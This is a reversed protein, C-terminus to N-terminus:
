PHLTVAHLRSRLPHEVRRDPHQGGAPDARQGVPGDVGLGPQRGAGGRVVEAGALREQVRDHRVEDRGLAGPPLLEGAGEGGPRGVFQGLRQAPEDLQDGSRGALEADRPVRQERLRGAVRLPLQANGPRGPGDGGPSAPPQGVDARGVGVGVGLDHQGVEVPDDQVPQGVRLELAVDSAAQPGQQASQGRNTASASRGRGM